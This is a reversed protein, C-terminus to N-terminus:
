GRDAEDGRIESLQSESLAPLEWGEIEEAIGDLVSLFARKNVHANALKEPHEKAKDRIEHAALSMFSGHLAALIDVPRLEQGPEQQERMVYEVAAAFGHQLRLTTQPNSYHVEVEIEPREPEGQADMQVRTDQAPDASM